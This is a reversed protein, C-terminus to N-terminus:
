NCTNLYRAAAAGRTRTILNPPAFRPEWRMELRGNASPVWRAVLQGPGTPPTATFDTRARRAGNLQTETRAYVCPRLQAKNYM